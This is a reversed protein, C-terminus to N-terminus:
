YFLCSFALMVQRAISVPSSTSVSSHARQRIVSRWSVVHGDVSAQLFIEWLEPEEETCEWKSLYSALPQSSGLHKWYLDKVKDGDLDGIFYSDITPVPDADESMALVKLVGSDDVWEVTTAMRIADSVTEGATMVSYHAELHNKLARAGRWQDTMLRMSIMLVIGSIVLAVLVELLTLGYEPYNNGSNWQM